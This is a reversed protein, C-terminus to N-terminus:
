WAKRKVTPRALVKRALEMGTSRLTGWSRGVILGAAFLLVAVLLAHKELALTLIAGIAISHGHGFRLM